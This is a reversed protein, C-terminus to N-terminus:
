WFAVHHDSGRLGADFVAVPQDTLGADDRRHSLDDGEGGAGVVLDNNVAAIEVEAVIQLLGREVECPMASDLM